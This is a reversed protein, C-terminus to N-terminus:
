ETANQTIQQSLQQSMLQDSRTIPTIQTTYAGDNVSDRPITMSYRILAITNYKLVDILHIPLDIAEDMSAVRIAPTYSYVGADLMEVSSCELGLLYIIVGNGTKDNVTYFYPNKESPKTYPDGYLNFAQSPTTRTFKTQLLGPGDCCNPDLQSYSLYEIGREMVLDIINEQLYIYKQNQKAGPFFSQPGSFIPLGNVVRLYQGSISNNDKVQNFIHQYKLRNASTTILYLIHAETYESDDYNQKVSTMIDYLVEGYTYAAM